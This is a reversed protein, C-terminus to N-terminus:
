VGSLQQVPSVGRWVLPGQPQMGPSPARVSGRIGKSHEPLHGRSGAAARQACPSQAAPPGLKAADFVVRPFPASLTLSPSHAPRRILPWKTEDLPLFLAIPPPLAKGIKQTDSRCQRRPM